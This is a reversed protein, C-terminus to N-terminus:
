AGIPEYRSASCGPVTCYLLKHKVGDRMETSRIHWDHKGHMRLRLRRYFRLMSPGGLLIRLGLGATLGGLASALLLSPDLWDVNM